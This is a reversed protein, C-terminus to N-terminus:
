ITGKKEYIARGDQLLSIKEWGEGPSTRSVCYYDDGLVYVPLATRGYQYRGEWVDRSDMGFHEAIL